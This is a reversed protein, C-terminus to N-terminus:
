QKEFKFRKRDTETEVELIYLGNSLNAVYIIETSEGQMMVRGSGDFIHYTFRDCYNVHLINEVPNPYVSISECAIDEAGTRDKVVVRHSVVSDCGKKSILNEYIQDFVGVESFTQGYIEGGVLITDAIEVITTEPVCTCYPDSLASTARDSYTATASICVQEGDFYSYPISKTFKGDADVDVIDLYKLASQPYNGSRFLEVKSGAGANGKIVLNDGDMEVSSIAPVQKKQVDIIAYDPMDIFLNRRLTVFSTLSDTKIGYDKIGYFVNDEYYKYELRDSPLWQQINDSIHTSYIAGSEGGAKIGNANTGFYNNHVYITDNGDDKIMPLDANPGFVNDHIDAYDMRSWIGGGNPRLEGDKTIGCYNDHFLLHSPEPIHTSTYSRVMYCIWKKNDYFECNEVEIHWDNATNQSYICHTQNNIFKCAKIHMNCHKGQIYIAQSSTGKLGEFLSNLIEGKSSNFCARMGGHFECNDVYLYESVSGSTVHYKCENFISNKLTLRYGYNIGYQVNEFNCRDVAISWSEDTACVFCTRNPTGSVSVDNLIFEATGENEIKDLNICNNNGGSSEKWPGIQINQLSFVGGNPMGDCHFFTELTEGQITIKGDKLSGDVEVSSSITIPETLEITTENPNSLDFDIKSVGNDANAQEIAWRLSGDGENATNTVTFPAANVLGSCVCFLMGLIFSFRSKGM